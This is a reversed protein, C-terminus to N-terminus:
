TVRPSLKSIIWAALFAELLSLPVAFPLISWPLVGMNVTVVWM